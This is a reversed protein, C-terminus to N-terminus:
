TPSDANAMYQCVMEYPTAGQLLHSAFDRHLLSVIDRGPRFPMAMGVTTGENGASITVTGKVYGKQFLELLREELRRSLLMLPYAAGHFAEESLREPYRAIRSPFGYATEIRRVASGDVVAKTNGRPARNPRGVPLTNPRQHDSNSTM